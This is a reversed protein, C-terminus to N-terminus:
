DKPQTWVRLMCWGGAGARIGRGRPRVKDLSLDTLEAITEQDNKWMICPTIILSQLIFAAVLLIAVIKVREPFDQGFYVAAIVFAAAALLTFILNTKALLPLTTRFNALWYDRFTRM